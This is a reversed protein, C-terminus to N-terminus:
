SITYKNRVTSESSVESGEGTCTPLSRVRLFSPFTNLFLSTQLFFQLYSVFIIITVRPGCIASVFFFKNKMSRFKREPFKQVFANRRCVSNFESQVHNCATNTKSLTQFFKGSFNNYNCEVYISKLM